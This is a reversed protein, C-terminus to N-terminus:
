RKAGSRRRLRARLKPLDDTAIIYQRCQSSGCLCPHLEEEIEWGYDITLERGPDIGAIACLEIGLNGSQVLECNPECSHNLYAGPAYPELSLGAGLDICYRSSYDPDDIVRGRLKLVLDGDEFRRGAVVGRGKGAIEVVETRKRRM